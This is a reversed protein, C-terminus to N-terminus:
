QLINLVQGVRQTYSAQVAPVIRLRDTIGPVDEDGHAFVAACIDVEDAQHGRVFQATCPFCTTKFRCDRCPHMLDLASRSQRKAEFDQFLIDEHVTRVDNTLLNIGTRVGRIGHAQNEEYSMAPCPMHNGYLDVYGFVDVGGCAAHDGPPLSIGFRENLYTTAAPPLFLDLEIGGSLLWAAVIECYADLLDRSSMELKGSFTEARGLMRVPKTSFRQAGLNRALHVMAGADRYNLASLVFAVQVTLQGSRARPHVAVRRLNETTLGFTGRGRMADHTAANAGDLSVILERLAPRDLLPAIADYETLNTNLSVAIEVSDAHDLLARLDQRYITAEGGLITAYKTGSASLRSLITKMEETALPERPRTQDPGVACHKCRLNCASTAYITVTRM